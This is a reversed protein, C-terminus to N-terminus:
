PVVEEFLHFVLAGDHLQFSGLHTSSGDIPHGTGRLHFYRFESCPEPDVRAWIFGKNDQTDVHLIEAGAPMKITFNAEIPIPYKYVWHTESESM